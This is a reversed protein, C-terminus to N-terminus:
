LLSEHIATLITDDAIDYLCRYYKQGDELVFCSEKDSDCTCRTLNLLVKANSNYYPLWTPSSRQAFVVSKHGLVGALHTIGTDVGLYLASKQIIGAVELIPLGIAVTTRPMGRAMEKAAEANEKSGTIVFSYEPFQETWTTILSRWRRLPFTKSPLTPFPHIALYKEPLAISKPIHTPLALQPPTGRSETKLGADASLRRLSELYFETVDHEIVNTYSQWSGVDRFGVVTNGCLRLLITYLKLSTQVHGATPPVVVLSRRFLYGLLQLPALAGRPSVVSVRPLASALDKIVPANRRALYTVTTNPAYELIERLAALNMLADGIQGGSPLWLIHAPTKRM